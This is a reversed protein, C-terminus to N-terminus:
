PSNRSGPPRLHFNHVTGSSFPFDDSGVFARRRGTNIASRVGVVSTHPVKIDHISLSVPVPAPKFQSEKPFDNTNLINSVAFAVLILLIMKM